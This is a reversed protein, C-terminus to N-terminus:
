PTTPAVSRTPDGQGSLREGAPPIRFRNAMRDVVAFRCLCRLMLFGAVAGLTNAALDNVDATRGSSLLVNTLFQVVEVSASFALALGILRRLRRVPWVLPLLVGLPVTMVVNLVFTRPDITVLPIVNAQSLLSAHNAYDGFAVQLPFLTVALVMVLYCGMAWATVLRLPTLVARHRLRLWSAVMWVGWLPLLVPTAPVVVMVNRM